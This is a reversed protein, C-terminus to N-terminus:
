KQRNMQENPVWLGTQIYKSCVAFISCSLRGFVGLFSLCRAMLETSKTIPKLIIYICVYKSVFSIFRQKKGNLIKSHAATACLIKKIYANLYHSTNWNQSYAIKHIRVSVNVLIEIFVNKSTNAASLSRFLSHIFSRNFFFEM